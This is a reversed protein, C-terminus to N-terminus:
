RVRRILYLSFCLFFANPAWAALVPHLFRGKGLALTIAMLGYYAVGCALSLGVGAVFGGRHKEVVFPVGLLVMVLNMVPFALKAQWDVELGYTQHAGSRKLQRIRNGLEALRLNDTQAEPKEFDKPTEELSLVLRRFSQPEASFRGQADQRYIWGDSFIWTRNAPEWQGWKAFIKGTLHQQEDHELITVDKLLQELPNYEGIHYLRNHNGFYTVNLRLPIKRAQVAAPGEADFTVAKIQQYRLTAQPVVLENLLFSAAAALVGLGLLPQVINHLGVGGAKMATLENNRTLRGLTFATALVVAVPLTRVIVEPSFNAYYALLIPGDLHLRLIEDLHGFLDIMVTLSVFSVLCWLLVPLTQAFLYRDLIRM